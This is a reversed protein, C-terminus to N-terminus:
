FSLSVIDLIFFMKLFPHPHLETQPGSTLDWYPLYMFLLEISFQAFSMFLCNVCHIYDLFARVHIFLNEIQCTVFVTDKFGYQCFFM